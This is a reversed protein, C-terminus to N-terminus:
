SVNRKGFIIILVNINQLNKLVYTRGCRVFFKNQGYAIINALNIRACEVIFRNKYFIEIFALMKEFNM